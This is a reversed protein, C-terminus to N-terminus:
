PGHHGGVDPSAWNRGSETEGYSTHKNIESDERTKSHFPLTQRFCFVITGLVAIVCFLGWLTHLM